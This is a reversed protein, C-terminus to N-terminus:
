LGLTAFNELIFERFFPLTFKIYGWETGDILGKRILRKRYPNFANTEVGLDNRINKIKGGDCRAIALAVEKDKVSLESWLKLYVYEELYQRYEDLIGNYDGGNAYTLNGLVQFAYSYGSTLEAMEISAEKSVGIIKEYNRAMASKNLPQMLVKPARYLFTLNDVNQLESVNEYLGTMLLFLPAGQRIFIQYASVFERVYQNNTVEDVKVLIKKGHKSLSELMKGVATEMDIIQSPKKVSMEVGFLSLSIDLSKLYETLTNNSYLKAGLSKIMDSSSNLEVMIWDGYEELKNSVESMFVTKGSGRVGTIIYVQNAPEEEIFNEVIDNAQVLRPIQQGPEKGFTIIYPNKMYVEM